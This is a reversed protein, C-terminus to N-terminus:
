SEAKITISPIDVDNRAALTVVLREAEVRNEFRLETDMFQESHTHDRARFKVVTYVAARAENV